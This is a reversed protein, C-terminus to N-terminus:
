LDLPHSASIKGVVQNLKMSLDLTHCLSCRVAASIISFVFQITFGRREDRVYESTNVTFSHIPGNNNVAGLTGTVITTHTPILPLCDKFDEWPLPFPTCHITDLMSDEGAPLAAKAVLFVVTENAQIPKSPPTYKRISVNIFQETDIFDLASLYNVYYSPNTSRVGDSLFFIGSILFSLAPAMKCRTIKCRTITKCRTIPLFQLCFPTYIDSVENCLRLPM